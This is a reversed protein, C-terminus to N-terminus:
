LNFVEMVEVSFEPVVRSTVSGEKGLFFTEYGREGNTFCEISRDMPDVIWYERVGMCQYLDKKTKLDYYANCPSLFNRKGDDPIARLDRVTKRKQEYILLM